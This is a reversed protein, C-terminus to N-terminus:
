LLSTNNLATPLDQQAHLQASTFAGEPCVHYAILSVLRQKLQPGLADAAEIIYSASFPLGLTSPLSDTAANDPLFVTVNPPLGNPLLNFAYIIQLITSADPMEQAVSSLSCPDLMLDQVLSRRQAQTAGCFALLLALAVSLARWGAM